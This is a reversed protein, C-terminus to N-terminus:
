LYNNSLFELRLNLEHPDEKKIEKVIIEKEKTDSQLSKVKDEEKIDFDHRELLLSALIQLLIQIKNNKFRFYSLFMYTWDIVFLINYFMLLVIALIKFWPYKDEADQEFLIGWFITMTGAIIARTELQNNRKNEYPQVWHQVKAIIMLFAISILSTYYVSLISLVTSLFLLVTKRITNIFEWFYAKRKLGQYLLLLYKKVKEYELNGRNRFLIFFAMIPIGIIWLVMSPLGIALFWFFHNYSWCEYELYMRMRRTEEDIQEWEFMALISKTITPHLLFIVWVITIIIYRRVHKFTKKCSWFMVIWFICFIIIIVIPMISVLFVKFIETSPAFGKLNADKLFWDFSLYTGSISTIREIYGSVRSLSEPFKFNFSLCAGMLQVYNTLIRLLVSIQNEQKKRITTVILALLFALSLLMLFVLRIANIVPSPWQDWEYTSVREYKKDATVVWETCLYGTYGTDWRVPHKNEPHYGGKCSGPRPWFRIDTSNLTNRWYGNDVKIKSGGLWVAHTMWNECKTSNWKFSYSGAPCEVWTSHDQVIEGPECYRFSVAISNDTLLDLYKTKHQDIANTSAFYKVFVAGPKLEFIIKTFFSVGNVIKSSVTGRIKANKTQPLIKINGTNILSTIQNDFDFLALEISGNYEQGSSIDSFTINKFPNDKLAIRIPYSAINEGYKATNLHHINESLVPRKFDYYISGGQYVAENNQFTSSSISNNWLDYETWEISIAAGQQAYNNDFITNDINVSSDKILIAGGSKLHITGWLTFNSNTLETVQSSKINLAQTVNYIKVNNMCKVVSEELLLATSKDLNWITLNDIIEVKSNSISVISSDLLDDRNVTCNDCLVTNFIKIDQCDNLVVVADKTDMNRITSNRIELTSSLGRMITVFSNKVEIREVILFSDFSFYLFQGNGYTTINEVEWREIVVQSIVLRIVSGETQIDIFSSDSINVTSLYTNLFYPQNTITTGNSILLTARIWEISYPLFPLTLLSTLTLLHASFTSSFCLFTCSTSLSLISSASLVSNSHITCNIFKPYTTVIFIESIPLSYAFNSIISSNYFEFYGDNSSQIVGSQIAFNNELVVIMFNSSAEIKFM